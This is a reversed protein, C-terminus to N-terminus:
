VQVGTADAVLLVQGGVAGAIRQTLSQMEEAVLDPVGVGPDVRQLVRVKRGLARELGEVFATGDEGILVTVAKRVSEPGPAAERVSLRRDERLVLWYYPAFFAAAAIIGMSWQAERLLTLSLKEELIANLLLYLVHSAGGLAAVTGALVVGYLLIRRALSTREEPGGLALRRQMSFWHYSWVPTGLIVLAIFTAIQNRWWDEGALVERASTVLIGIVTPVLIIIAAALAGLGLAAMIYAYARRAAELEGGTPRERQVVLWHYLWLLLGVLLSSLAAPLFRFHAAASAEEPVGILWVLAGTLIIGTATLVTVAGGLIAFGYLYYQRLTSEADRRAAYLWHWAWAGGGALAVALGNRLTDSWLLGERRLLPSLSFLDDYAERLVVYLVVGLGVALMSLGYTSTSYLYLRRVTQNTPTLEGETAAVRWHFLWLGAFVGLAALPYGRFPEGGFAWRLTQVSGYVVFGAAVGLVLYIYVKRLVSRSEAPEERTYRQVRLWHWAWLPTWIVALVVGLSLPGQDRSLVTPGFLEDLVYRAILVLGSAAVMVSVFSAGYFYLRRVTGIGRDAEPEAGLGERRRSHMVAAVIGGIIAAILALPVLSQLIGLLINM